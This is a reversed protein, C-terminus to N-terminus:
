KPLRKGPLAAQSGVIAGKTAMAVELMTELRVLRRDMDRLDAASQKVEGALHSVKGGLAEVRDTLKIAGTLADWVKDSLGM